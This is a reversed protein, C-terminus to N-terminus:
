AEYIKVCVASNNDNNGDVRKKHTKLMKEMWEAATKSAKLSKEMEKEWVYEWFGDTCLLFADGPRIPFPTFDEKIKIENKNGLVKTLKNRDEHFRMKKEKIEGMDVCAQTVSHDKSRFLIKNKRFYYMRSDGVNLYNFMGDKIFGTVVTSAMDKYEPNDQRIKWIYSNVDDIIRHMNSNSLDTIGAYKNKLYEVTERSAVEGCSHGGLGDAVIYMPERIGVYDENNKRGGKDTYKFYEARM